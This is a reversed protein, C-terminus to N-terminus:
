FESVGCAQQAQSQIFELSAAYLAFAMIAVGKSDVCGSGFLVSCAVYALALMKMWSVTALSILFVERLADRLKDSGRALKFAATIGALMASITMVIAGSQLTPAAALQTSALLAHGSLFPALGLWLMLACYLAASLVQGSPLGGIFASSTGGSGFVAALSAGAGRLPMATGGASVNATGSKRSAGKSSREQQAGISVSFMGLLLLLTLLAHMSSLEALWAVQSPLAAAWEACPSLLSRLLSNAENLQLLLMQQGEVLRIYQAQVCSHHYLVPIASLCTPPRSVIPRPSLRLM